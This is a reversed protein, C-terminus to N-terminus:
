FSKSEWIEGRYNKQIANQVVRIKDGNVILYDGEVIVEGPFKGHTSDYRTLHANVNVNGLDNIAM